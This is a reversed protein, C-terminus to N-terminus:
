VLNHLCLLVVFAVAVFVASVSYLTSVNLRSSLSFIDVPKDDFHWFNWCWAWIEPTCSLWWMEIWVYAFWKTPLIPLDHSFTLRDFLLISVIRVFTLVHIIIEYLHFLVIHWKAGFHFILFDVLIANAIIFVRQCHIATHALTAIKRFWEMYVLIYNLTKVEENWFKVAAIAACCASFIIVRHQM